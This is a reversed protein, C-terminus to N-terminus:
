SLVLRDQTVLSVGIDDELGRGSIVKKNHELKLALLQQLNSFMAIQRMNPEHKM